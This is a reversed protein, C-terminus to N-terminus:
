PKRRRNASRARTAEWNKVTMGVLGQTINGSAGLSTRQQERTLISDFNDIIMEKLMVQSFIRYGDKTVIMIGTVGAFADQPNIAALYADRVNANFKAFDIRNRKIVDKFLPNNKLKSRSLASFHKAIDLVEFTTRLINIRSVPLEGRLVYDSETTLVDLIQGYLVDVATKM